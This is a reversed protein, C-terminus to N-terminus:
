PSIPDTWDHLCDGSCFHLTKRETDNATACNVVVRTPHYNVLNVLKGCNACPAFEEASHALSNVM